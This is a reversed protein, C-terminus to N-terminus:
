FQSFSMFFFVKRIYCFSILILFLIGSSSVIVIIVIKKRDDIDSSHEVKVEELGEIKENNEAGNKVEENEVVEGDVREPEM